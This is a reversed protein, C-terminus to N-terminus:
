EVTAAVASGSVQAAIQEDYDRVFNQYRKEVKGYSAQYNPVSTRSGFLMRIEQENFHRRVEKHFTSCSPDYSVGSCNAASGRAQITGLTADAANALQSVFLTAIAITFMSTKM